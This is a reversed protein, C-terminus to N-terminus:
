RGLGIAPLAAPASEWYRARFARRAADPDIGARAAIAHVAADQELSWREGLRGLWEGAARITTPTPTPGAIAAARWAIAPSRATLAASIVGPGRERLAEDADKAEALRAVHLDPSRTARVANDIARHTAILGAEDNDLMLTVEQVGLRDLRAFLDPSTIVSGLAAVNAIGRARCSRRFVRVSPGVADLVRVVSSASAVRDFLEPQDRLAGLDSVCDGGDVLMVVLDRLM